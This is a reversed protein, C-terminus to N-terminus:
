KKRVWNQDLNWGQDPDTFINAPIPDDYWPGNLKMITLDPRELWGRLVFRQTNTMKVVLVGGALTITGDSKESLKRGNQLGFFDLWIRGQATITWKNTFHLSEFGAYTGSYRDVYTTTIGDNQGWEGALDAVTMTRTPAPIFLKGGVTPPAAAAAGAPAGATATARKVVLGGLMTEIEAEYTGFADRTPTLVVMSLVSAGADLVILRAWIPQGRTTSAASGVAARANGVTRTIPPPASVADITKLAVAQWEAAFSARLDSGAPTSAYIVVMCYSTSSAKTLEVRGEKKELVTFGTPATFTILDWTRAATNPQAAFGVSALVASLWLLSRM